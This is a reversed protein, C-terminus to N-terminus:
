AVLLCARALKPLQQDLVEALIERGRAPDTIPEENQSIHLEGRQFLGVLVDVLAARDRTGDLHPLLHRDFPTVTVVEHRLNTVHEIGQSAQWRALSSAVPRASVATAFPPPRLSLEVLSGDGASYATLLAKGLEAADQDGCAACARALLADFPLAAPWAEGLCALAAKVLPTSTTLGQGSPTVFEVPGEAHLDADAQVPRLPSAIHFAALQEGRLAYNPTLHSRCILTQRFMRNRLFDMYQEQELLNPALEA